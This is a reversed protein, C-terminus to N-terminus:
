ARVGRRVVRRRLLVLSLTCIVVGAILLITRSERLLAGVRTSLGAEEVATATVLPLRAVVDGRVRVEITGVRAGATLPGDLERPAGVVRVQAREGRRMVRETGRGAVLRVQETRYKLDARAFTAGRRVLTRRQYRSLGYRLLALTDADRASETPEGLVVSVVTVGNRTGSGVLVYGAQNTRGTKLGNVWDVQRVLRNRNEFTRRRAGSTLTAQPLNATRRLFENRRLVVGLRALDRATSRNRGVDLGVPNTFTTDKMGLERARDNMEEVFASVSGSVAVALTVAADNASELMLARLLDKTTLREGARLGAQSEAPAANYPAATLVDDLAVSEVTLLATMLKTTSAISRRQDANREYVVDGTSTEVVIASPARIDPRGGDQASAPAPASLAAAVLAAVLVLAARIM